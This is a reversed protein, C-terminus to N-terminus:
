PMGNLPGPPNSLESAIEFVGSISVESGGLGAMPVANFFSENLFMPWLLRDEADFWGAM